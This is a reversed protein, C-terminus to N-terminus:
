REFEYKRRYQARSHFREYGHALRRGADVASNTLKGLTEGFKGAGRKFSEYGRDAERGMKAALEKISAEAVKQRLEVPLMKYKAMVHDHVIKSFKEVSAGVVVNYELSALLAQTAKVDRDFEANQIQLPVLERLERELRSSTATHGPTQARVSEAQARTLDTQARLQQVQAASHISGASSNGRSFVPAQQGGPAHAGGQQYALMPNLGSAKMDAVARQYASSSMREAFMNQSDMVERTHGYDRNAAYQDKGFDVFGFPDFIDGLGFSLDM